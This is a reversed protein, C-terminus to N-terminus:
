SVTIGQAKAREILGQKFYFFKRAPKKKAWLFTSQVLDLPLTGANVRAIVREIFGNEQAASTHLAVKMTEADLVGASEARAYRVALLALVLTLSLCVRNMM